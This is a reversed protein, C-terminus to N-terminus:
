LLLARSGTRAYGDADDMLLGAGCVGVQRRERQAPCPRPIRARSPVFHRGVDKKFGVRNLFYQDGYPVLGLEKDPRMKQLYTEVLPSYSRLAKTNEAERALVRDVVRDFATTATAPAPQPKAAFASSTVALVIGLLLYKVQREM